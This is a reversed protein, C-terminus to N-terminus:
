SLQSSLRVTRPPVTCGTLAEPDISVPRYPLTALRAAMQGSHDTVPQATGFLFAWEHEDSGFYVTSEFVSTFRRWADVLTANRWMTPCGAQAAVVGGETLIEKCQKLFDAGYLRNHQADVGAQEDPLDVVVLDYREDTDLVWQYGDAYHVRVPGRGAVAGALEAETYGYPLLRACAQVCEQDIDVHDVHAAGAAVSLQSAVGESSGIILVRDLQRALLFGPVMLAEHYVLQSLETSQREDECFLSIGQATRCILMRQYATRAEHLVEDIQWVREMGAGLPERLERM